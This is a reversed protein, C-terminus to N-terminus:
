EDAPEADAARKAALYEALTPGAPKNKAAKARLMGLIRRAESSIRVMADADVQLGAVVDAQLRESVQVLNAAQRILSREVESLNGGLEKEFSEILARFRRAAITRGDSRPLEIGTRTRRPRRKVHRSQKAAALLM